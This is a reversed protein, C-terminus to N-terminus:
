CSIKLRGVTKKKKRKPKKPPPNQQKEKRSKQTQVCNAKSVCPIFVAEQWILKKKKLKILQIKVHIIPNRIIKKKKLQCTSNEQCQANLQPWLMTFPKQDLTGPLHFQDKSLAKWWYIRIVKQYHYSLEGFATPYELSLIFHERWSTSSFPFFIELPPVERLWPQPPKMRQRHYPIGVTRYTLIAQPFRTHYITM